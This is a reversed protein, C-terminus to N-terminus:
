NDIYPWDGPTEPGELGWLVIANCISSGPLLLRNASPGPTGEPMDAGESDSISCFSRFNACSFGLAVFKWAFGPSM